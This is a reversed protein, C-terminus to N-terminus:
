CAPTNGRCRASADPIGQCPPTIYLAASAERNRQLSVGHSFRLGGGSGIECLAHCAIEAALGHETVDAVLVDQQHARPGLNEGDVRMAAVIVPREGLPEHDAGADATGPMMGTEVEAGSLRRPCRRQIRKRDPLDLM